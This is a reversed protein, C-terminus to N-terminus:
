GGQEDMALNDDAGPVARVLEATRDKLAKTDRNGSRQLVFLMVLSVDSIFSNFLDQPPWVFWAVVCVLIALYIAWVSGAISAMRDSILCALARM